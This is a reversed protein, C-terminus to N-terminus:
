MGTTAEIASPVHLRYFFVIQVLGVVPTGRSTRFRLRLCLSRKRSFTSDDVMMGMFKCRTILM